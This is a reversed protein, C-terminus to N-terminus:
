DNYDQFSIYIITMGCFVVVKTNIPEEWEMTNMNIIAFLCSQQMM